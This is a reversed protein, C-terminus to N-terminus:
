KKVTILNTDTLTKAHNRADSDRLFANGDSTFFIEKATPYSKFIEKTKDKIAQKVAKAKDAEAKATEKEAKATAELAEKEDAIAKAKADLDAKIDAEAAEKAEQDAKSDLDANQAAIQEATLEEKTEKKAM